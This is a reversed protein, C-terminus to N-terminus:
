QTPKKAASAPKPATAAKAVAGRHTEIHTVKVPRLPKEGDTAMRAIQKVLEV